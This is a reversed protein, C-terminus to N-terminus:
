AEYDVTVGEANVTSDLYVTALDCPGLERSDGAKLYGSNRTSQAAIVGSGGVVVTGTNTELACLVARRVVLSAANLKVATGATVTVVRLNGSTLNGQNDPM